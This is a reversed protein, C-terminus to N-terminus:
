IPRRAHPCRSPCDAKTRFGSRILDLEALLQEMSSRQLVQFQPGQGPPQDQRGGAAPSAAGSLALLRATILDRLGLELPRLREFRGKSELPAIAM